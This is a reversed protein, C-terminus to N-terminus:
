GNTAFCCCVFCLSCISYTLLFYQKLIRGDSESQDPRIVLVHDKDSEPKGCDGTKVCPEPWSLIRDGVPRSILLPQLKVQADVTRLGAARSISATSHGSVTDCLETLM